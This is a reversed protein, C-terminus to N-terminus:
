SGNPPDNPPGKTLNASQPTERENVAIVGDALILLFGGIALYSGIMLQIPFQSYAIVYGILLAGLGGGGSAFYLGTAKVFFAVAAGALAIILMFKIDVGIDGDAILNLGNVGVGQCGGLPLFLMSFIALGGGIKSLIGKKM